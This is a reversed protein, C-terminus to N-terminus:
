FCEGPHVCFCTKCAAAATEEAAIQNELWIEDAHAQQLADERERAERELQQTRREKAQAQQFQKRQEDVFATSHKLDATMYLETLWEEPSGLSAVPRESVATM